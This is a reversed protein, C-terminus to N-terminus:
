LFLGGLTILAGAGAGVLDVMYLRPIERRGTLFSLGIFIGSVFFFPFLAVYYMGIHGLQDKWLVANQFELPNFPNLTVLVYGGAAAAPLILACIFLLGERHREAWASGLSLVVGSLAYGAMAMSIVWYGYESWNSLAFFRTLFIEFAISALSVFFLGGWARFRHSM